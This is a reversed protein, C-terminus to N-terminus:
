LNRYNERIGKNANQHPLNFSGQRITECQNWQGNLFWTEMVFPCIRKTQGWCLKRCQVTTGRRASGTQLWKWSGWSRRHMKWYAPSQTAHFYLIHWKTLGYYISNQLIIGLPVRDKSKRGKRGAERDPATIASLLCLLLTKSNKCQSRRSWPWCSMYNWILESKVRNQCGAPSNKAPM